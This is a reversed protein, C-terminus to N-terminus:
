ISYGLVIALQFYDADGEFELDTGVLARLDAGLNFHEAFTWYAGGHGYVGFSDDDESGSGPVDVEAEVWSVGLGLYPHLDRAMTWTKRGGTYFEMVKADFDTGGESADDSTRSGGIEWGFVSRPDYADFELGWGFQEDAPEADDVNRGILLLSVNYVPTPRRNTQQVPDQPRAGASPCLLLLSALVLMTM